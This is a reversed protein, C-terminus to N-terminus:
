WRETSSESGPLSIESIEEEEEETLLNSKNKSIDCPFVQYRNDHSIECEELYEIKSFSVTIALGHADYFVGYMSM